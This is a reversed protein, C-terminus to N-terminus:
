ERLRAAEVLASTYPDKPRDFVDAASGREVIRGGKMVMAEDAMARMLALDHSIFLYALGHRKQLANLLDLIAKQVSRDLSSTPEDLIVLSPRLM